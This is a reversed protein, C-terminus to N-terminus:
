RRERLIMFFIEVIKAALEAADDESGAKLTAMVQGEDGTASVKTLERMLLDFEKKIDPFDDFDRSQLTMFSMFASYVRQRIDRPSTALTTVAVMFKEYPYSLARGSM